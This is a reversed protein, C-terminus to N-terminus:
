IRDKCSTCNGDELARGCVPCDEAEQLKRLQEMRLWGGCKACAAYYEGLKDHFKRFIRGHHRCRCLNPRGWRRHESEEPDAYGTSKINRDHQEDIERSRDISFNM